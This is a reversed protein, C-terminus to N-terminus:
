LSGLVPNLNSEDFPKGTHACGDDDITAPWTRARCKAGPDNTLRLNFETTGKEGKEEPHSQDQDGGVTKGFEWELTFRDYHSPTRHVPLFREPLADAKECASSQRNPGASDVTGNADPWPSFCGLMGMLHAHEPLSAVKPNMYVHMTHIIHQGNGHNRFKTAVLRVLNTLRSSYVFGALEMRTVWWWDPHVEVHHHGGWNSHSAMVIAAKHFVAQYNAMFPRAVHELVEVCWALDYTKEPWYPAKAFDHGVIRSPPLYSKSIAENSGEICLVDAGHELFWKTSVGRGCGVDVVSQVTLAKMLFTWLGPALGQPDNATSGGLHRADVGVGDYFGQAKGTEILAQRDLETGVVVSPRPRPAAGFARLAPPQPLGDPGPPTTATNMPTVNVTAQDGGPGTLISVTIVTAVVSAMVSYLVVANTQPM